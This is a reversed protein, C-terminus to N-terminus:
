QVSSSWCLTGADDNDQQPLAKSTNRLEMLETHKANEYPGPACAETFGRYGVRM